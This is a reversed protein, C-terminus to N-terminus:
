KLCQKINYRIKIDYPCDFPVARKFAHSHAINPHLNEMEPTWRKWVNAFWNGDMEDAHSFHNIKNLIRDDSGAFSFHYLTIDQPLIIAHETGINRNYRFKLDTAYCIPITRRFRPLIEWNEDKWFTFCTNINYRKTPNEEIFKKLKAIDKETYYEDADIIFIYEFGEKLALNRVHEREETETYFDRYIVEAGMDKAIEGTKDFGHHTGEWPKSIVVYTHVTTLGLLCGRILEEENYALVMAAFKKDKKTNM